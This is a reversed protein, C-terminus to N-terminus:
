SKRSLDGLLKEMEAELSDRSPQPEPKVDPTELRDDEDNALQHENYHAALFNNDRPSGLTPDESLEAALVAEFDSSAQADAATQAPSPASAAAPVLTARAAERAQPKSSPADATLEDFANGDFTPEEFMRTRVTELM